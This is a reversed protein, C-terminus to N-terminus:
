FGVWSLVQNGQAKMTFHPPKHTQETFNEAVGVL